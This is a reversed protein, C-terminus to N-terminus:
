FHRRKTFYDGAKQLQSAHGAFQWTRSLLGAVEQAYIADSTYYRAELSHTIPANM